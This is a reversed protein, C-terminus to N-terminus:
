FPKKWIMFTYMQSIQSLRITIYFYLFTKTVSFIIVENFTCNRLYTGILPYFINILCVVSFIFKFKNTQM